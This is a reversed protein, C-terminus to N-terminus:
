PSRASRARQGSAQDIAIRWLNMSGGRDSSFYLTAGDPAWAPSWDLPPDKMVPVAPGGGAAITWIDRQGGDAAWFAIRHGPPRGRRSSRTATTSRRRRAARRTWQGCSAPGPNSTRTTVEETCFVIQKGDPSWSPNFGFDTLRRASEGTAGM